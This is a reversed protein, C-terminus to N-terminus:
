SRIRELLRKIKYSIRKAFKLRAPYWNSQYVVGIYFDALKSEDMGMRRDQEYDELFLYAKFLPEKPLLPISRHKLLAEGYWSAEHPHSAIALLINSEQADLENALDQWVHRSWIVPFPGFNYLPGIRGFRNQMARSTTSYCSFQRYFRHAAWYELLSKGEHIITYPAGSINVFDSVDFNRIFRMDSDLCLYNEAPNIRWFEAKIIQQSIQGPLRNYADLSLAPNSALIQEDTVWVVDSGISDRFQKLEAEPVSVYLELADANFRRFTEVLKELRPLDPLYSKCFLTTPAAM